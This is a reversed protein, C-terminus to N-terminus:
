GAGGAQGGAVGGLEDPTDIDREQETVLEGDQLHALDDSAAEEGMPTPEAADADPDEDVFANTEGLPRTADGATMDGMTGDDDADLPPAVDLPAALRPAESSETM